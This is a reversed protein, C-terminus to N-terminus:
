VFFCASLKKLSNKYHPEFNLIERLFYSFLKLNVKKKRVKINNIQTNNALVEKKMIASYTM